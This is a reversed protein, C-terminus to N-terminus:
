RRSSFGRPQVEGPVVLFPAYAFAVYAVNGNPPPASVATLFRGGLEDHPFVIVTATFSGSKDTAVTNSTTALIGQSWALQVQSSAPFDTGQAVAVTGPPGVAPTLTLTPNLLPPPVQGPPLPTPTPGKPPPPCPVGFLAQPPPLALITATDVLPVALVRYTGAPVAYPQIVTNITGPVGTTKTFFVQQQPGPNFVIRVAGVPFNQGVVRITYTSGGPLVLQIPIPTSTPPPPPTPTPTPTPPPGLGPDGCNPQLAITPPVPPLSAALALGGLLAPSWALLLLAAGAGVRAM